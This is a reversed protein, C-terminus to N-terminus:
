ILTRITEVTESLTKENEVRCNTVGKITKRTLGYLTKGAGCEIFTDVNHQEHMNNLIDTWRVAMKAQKVLLDKIENVNGFLDGTVNSFVPMEPMVIEIRNLEDALREAAPKMLDCHFPASVALKVARIRMKEAIELAEDIGEVTGSIVTQVPSNYNAPTVYNSSVAACLKEVSAPDAMIAAMAGKGVPVAEQMADARIQVLKFAEGIEIAGAFVLAAYEGLSFGAVGDAEVGREQLAYGAALDAALMCVQTNHTLNLDEQSGSFCMDSISRGLVQDAVEFVRRASTYNDCLEKAMGPYQAGQGSFLFAKKM